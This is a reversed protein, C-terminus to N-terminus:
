FGYKDRAGQGKKNRSGPLLIDMFDMKNAQQNAMKMNFDSVKKDLGYQKMFQDMQASMQQGFQSESIDSLKQKFAQDKDFMASNFGQSALRESTGYERGIQAQQAAFGQSAERESKAFDRQAQLEEQQGLAADRQVEVGELANQKIAAGQKQQQQQQQQYVGSGLRGKSAAQRQLGEEAKQQDANVGQETQQRLYDFRRQIRNGM